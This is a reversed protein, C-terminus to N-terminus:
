RSFGPPLLDCPLQGSPPRELENPRDLCPALGGDSTPAGGPHWFYITSFPQNPVKLRLVLKYYNTDSDLLNADPKTWTVASVNQAADEIRSSCHPSNDCRVCTGRARADAASPKGVHLASTESASGRQAEDNSM